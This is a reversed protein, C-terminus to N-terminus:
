SYKKNLYVKKFQFYKASVINVFFTFYYVINAFTIIDPGNLTDVAIIFTRYLNVKVSKKDVIVYNDSDINRNKIYKDLICTIHM